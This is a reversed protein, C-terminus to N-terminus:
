RHRLISGAAANSVAGMSGLSLLLGLFVSVGPLSAFRVSGALSRM